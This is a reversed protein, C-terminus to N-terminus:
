ECIIDTVTFEPFYLPCIAKIDEIDKPRRWMKKVTILSDMTVVRINSNLITSHISRTESCFEQETLVLFDLPVMNALEVKICARDRYAGAGGYYSRLGGKMFPNCDKLAALVKKASEETILIDMDHVERRLPVGSLLMAISGGIAWPNDKIDLADLVLDLKKILKPLIAMNCSFTSFYSNTTKM